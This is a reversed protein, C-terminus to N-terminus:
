LYFLVYCLVAVICVYMRAREMNVITLQLPRSPGFIQRSTSIYLFLFEAPWNFEGIAHYLFSERGFLSEMAKELKVNAHIYKEDKM